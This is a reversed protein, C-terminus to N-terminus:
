IHILSLEVVVSAVELNEAAIEFLSQEFPTDSATIFNAILPENWENSAKQVLGQEWDGRHPFLAYKLQTPGHIKYELGWLGIGVYQVTLGLPLEDSQIYSTTHDSFLAVGYDKEPNVVDVWNM